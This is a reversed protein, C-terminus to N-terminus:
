CLYGLSNDHLTNLPEDPAICRKRGLTDWMVDTSVWECNAAIQTEADQGLVSRCPSSTISCTVKQNSSSAM